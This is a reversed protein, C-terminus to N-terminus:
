HIGLKNATNIIPKSIVLGGLVCAAFILLM